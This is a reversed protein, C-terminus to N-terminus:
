NKCIEKSASFNGPTSLIRTFPMQPNILSRLSKQLRNASLGFSIASCASTITHVDTTPAAEGNVHPEEIKVSEEEM